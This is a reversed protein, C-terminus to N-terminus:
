LLRPQYSNQNQQQQQQQQKEKPCKVMKFPGLVEFEAMQAKGTNVEAM